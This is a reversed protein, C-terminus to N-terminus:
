LLVAHLDMTVFNGVNEIVHNLMLLYYSFNPFRNLHSQLQHRRYLIFMINLSLIENVFPNRVKHKHNPTQYSKLKLKEVVRQAVDLSMEGCGDTFNHRDNEIDDM